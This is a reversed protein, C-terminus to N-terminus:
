KDEPEVHVYPAQELRVKELRSMMWTKRPWRWFTKATADDDGCHHAGYLRSMEFVQVYQPAKPKRFPNTM